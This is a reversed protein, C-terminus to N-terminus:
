QIRIEDLKKIVAGSLIVESVKQVCKKIEKAFGAAYLGLAANAVITYFIGNKEKAEAFRIFMDANEEPGGGIIENLEVKPLGFDTHTLEYSYPKIGKEYEFIRITGNLLVEDFRNSTCVVCIKEMNMKEAAGAMLEATKDHFAGILQRKTAAPNTLPGLINFVTRIALERRVPMVYKM